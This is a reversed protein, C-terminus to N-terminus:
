KDKERVLVYDRTSFGFKIVDSERLEIFRSDDVKEGNLLTKHTSKLDMLYPKSVQKVPHEGDKGKSSTKRFQIVAHQNSCSPHASLNM